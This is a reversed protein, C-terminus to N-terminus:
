PEAKWTSRTYSALFYTRLMFVRGLDNGDNQEQAMATKAM